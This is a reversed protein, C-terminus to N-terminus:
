MGGGRTLAAERSSPKLRRDRSYPDYHGPQRTNTQRVAPTRSRPGSRLSPWTLLLSRTPCRCGRQAAWGRAMVDEEPCRRRRRWPSSCASGGRSVVESARRGGPRRAGSGSERVGLGSGVEEIVSRGRGASSGPAPWSRHHEGPLWAGRLCGRLRSSRRWCWWRQREVSDQRLARRRISSQVRAVFRRMPEGPVVEPRRPIM